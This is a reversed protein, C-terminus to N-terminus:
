AKWVRSHEQLQGVLSLEPTERSQKAGMGILVRSSRQGDVDSQRSPLEEGSNLPVVRRSLGQARQTSRLEHLEQAESWLHLSHVSRHISVGDSKVRAM